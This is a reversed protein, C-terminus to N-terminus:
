KKNHRIAVVMYEHYSREFERNERYSTTGFQSLMVKKADEKKKQRKNM